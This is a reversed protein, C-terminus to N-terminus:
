SGVTEKGSEPHTCEPPDGHEPPFRGAGSIDRAIQTLQPGLKKRFAPTFVRVSGTAGISMTAGPGIESLPAAVSAMGREIEEVCEAYGRERIAALDAELDEVRTLTFETYARLRGDLRDFDLLSPTFAAVAKSCSCAHLPRKGLGPHLFSVGTDPTEVHIIEVARGRLRSLFFAAGLRSAAQRLAPAVQEILAEDSQDSHTMRKLRVGLSFRGRAMPELLGVGVLDQVLRYASAKPLDSHECIDGVTAEGKQGVIELILTLRELHM